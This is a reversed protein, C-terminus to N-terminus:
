IDFTYYAGNCQKLSFNTWIAGVVGKFYGPVVSLSQIPAAPVRRQGAVRDEVPM